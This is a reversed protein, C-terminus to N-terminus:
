FGDSGASLHARWWTQWEIWLPELTALAPTSTERPSLPWAMEFWLCQHNFLPITGGLWRLFRWPQLDQRYCNQIFQERTVTNQGGPSLCSSLYLTNQDQYVGYSGFNPVTKLTLNRPLRNTFNYTYAEIDGVSPRLYRASLTLVRNGQTYRYTRGNRYGINQAFQAHVPPAIKEAGPSRDLTWGPLPVDEPFPFPALTLEPPFFIVRALTLAAALALIKVLKPAWPPSIDKAASM